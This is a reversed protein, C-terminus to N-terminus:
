KLDTHVPAVGETEFANVINLGVLLLSIIVIEIM